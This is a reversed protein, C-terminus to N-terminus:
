KRENWGMERGREMRGEIGMGDKGEKDREGETKEGKERGEGGDM